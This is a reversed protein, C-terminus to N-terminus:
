ARSTRPLRLSVLYAVGCGLGALILGVLHFALTSVILIGALIWPFQPKSMAARYPAPTISDM